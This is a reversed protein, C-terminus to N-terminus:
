LSQLIAMFIPLYLSIVILGVIGGVIVVLLPELLATLGKTMTAVEDEYFGAIRNLLQPLDGTEEGVEVMMTVMPPFIGTERLPGAMSQGEQIRLSAEEVAREVQFSGSTPGATALAQIVPIGGAMLTSFTRCFRAVTTKIFLGGFVPLRFKLANLFRGGRASSALLKLGLGAGAVGALLLYWYDRTVTSLGMVMRTILPLQVDAPFMAAFMPVVFVLMGLLVLTAFVLMAVPYFTATRISDRLAKDRELQESLRSM